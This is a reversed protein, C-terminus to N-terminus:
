GTSGSVYHPLAPDGSGVTRRETDASEALLEVIAGQLSPRTVPKSVCLAGGLRRCREFDGSRHTSALIVIPLRATTPDQRLAEAVEFGNMAPMHADLIALDFPRLEASAQWLEQLAAPGSAAPVPALRWGTLIAQLIRLSTGNDDAVLVRAGEPIEMVPSDSAGEDPAVDLSVTFHFTSGTAEDSEVWIRGGMLRVLRSSIALGLGTGGHRRRSSGDVQVFAEFIEAQKEKPIGYGTDRVSFHLTCHLSSEESAEECREIRLVVEGRDTFKVANGVLNLVVQRLRESDGVLRRPVSPDVDFALELNKEHARVAISHLAGGIADHLDFPAPHLEFKGAEVKSFDLIDNILSLLHEASDQAISIFGRQETTLETDLALENMGIVGNMPTRIEHSMNALFESKARNAAEAANKAQRWQETTKELTVTQRRVQRRLMAIWVLSLLLAVVGAGLVGLVDQSTWWPPAKTVEIDSASRVLVHLAKLERNEGVEIECIGTLKVRSDRRLKGLPDRDALRPVWAEFLLDGTRLTLLDDDKRRTRDVYTAELTVLDSASDGQLVNAATVAHAAPVVSRGIKRVESNRLVPAYDGVDAFGVAEVKDGPLLPIAHLSEVRLGDEADHIFLVGNPRQLMVVGEVKVRHEFVGGSSFRLLRNVRRSNASFPDAPAPKTITLHAPTPVLVQFGTFQQRNFLSGCVGQVRVEADVLKGADFGESNEFRARFHRGEHSITLETRDGPIARAALVVGGVEVWQAAERGMAMRDYPEVQPEPFAGMGVVRITAPAINPAFGGMTSWGEVEVLQGAKVATPPKGAEVYIGATSDQFYFAGFRPPPDALTVVGRVRVPVRAAAREPSLRRVDAVTTLTAPPPAEGVALTVRVLLGCALVADRALRPTKLYDAKESESM